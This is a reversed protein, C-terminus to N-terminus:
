AFGPMTGYKASGPVWIYGDPCIRQYDSAAVQGAVVLNGTGSITYGTMPCTNSGFSGGTCIKLNQNLISFNKGGNSNGGQNLNLFLDGIADVYWEAYNSADSTWRVQPTASTNELV